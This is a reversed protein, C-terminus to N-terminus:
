ATGGLIGGLEALSRVEHDPSVSSDNSEGSRNLWVSIAGVGNIGAVASQLSDGVHVPEGPACDAQEFDWLTMDGDFPIAKITEAEGM